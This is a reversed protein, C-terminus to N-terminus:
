SRELDRRARRSTRSAFRKGCRCTHGVREHPGYGLDVRDDSDMCMHSSTPNSDVCPQGSTTPKMACCEDLYGMWKFRQERPLAPPPVDRCMCICAGDHGGQILCRHVPLDHYACRVYGDGWTFPCDSPERHGEVLLTTM